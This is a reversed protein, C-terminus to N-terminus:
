HTAIFMEQNDAESGLCHRSTWHTWNMQDEGLEGLTEGARGSETM